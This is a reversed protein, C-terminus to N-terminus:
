RSLKREEDNLLTTAWSVAGKRSGHYTTEEFGDTYTVILAYQHKSMSRVKITKIYQEM